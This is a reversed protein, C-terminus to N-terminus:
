NPYNVSKLVNLVEEGKSGLRETDVIRQEDVATTGGIREEGV